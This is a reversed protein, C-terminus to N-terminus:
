IAPLVPRAAPDHRPSLTAMARARDLRREARQLAGAVFDLGAAESEFFRGHRRLARTLTGRVEEAVHAPTRIGRWRSEAMVEGVVRRVSDRATKSSFSAAMQEQFPEISTGTAYWIREVGRIKLDAILWSLDHAGSAPEIWAGLSECEGDILWGLAWHVIRDQADAGETWRLVAVNFVCLFYRRCLPRNRCQTPELMPFTM